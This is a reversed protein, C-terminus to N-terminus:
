NSNPKYTKALKSIFLDAVKNFPMNARKIIGLPREFKLSYFPLFCLRDELYPQTPARPMTTILDTSAIMDLALRISDTECGIQIIQVGSSMMAAETQNRLYSGKSHFLWKQIELDSALIEHKETLEHGSRCLIGVHDDVLHEFVVGADTHILSQPGIVLDIEGRGLMTRLEHVLGVRLEIVCDPYEIAFQSLPDSLFRGAVIPPAGIRLEGIAGATALDVHAGAQEEAIRIALGSRALHRGLSNAVSRRGDRHFISMGLRAELMGVNRSLAPQTLGLRDAAAQFSGSEVIVSLQALHRPDLKM